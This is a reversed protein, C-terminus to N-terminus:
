FFFTVNVAWSLVESAQFYEPLLKELFNFFSCFFYENGESLSEILSKQLLAINVSSVLLRFM